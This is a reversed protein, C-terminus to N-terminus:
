RDPAGPGFGNGDGALVGVTNGWTPGPGTGPVTEPAAVPRTRLLETLGDLSRLVPLDEPRLGSGHRDLWIGMLGAAAAARADVDVEDGVYACRRAPVGLRSCALHFVRPDPKGFGLDDLCVTLPVRETLGLRALKAASFGRAANTLVGWPLGIRDLDDLAPLADRNVRLSAAFTRDFEVLWSDIEADDLAPGGFQTHLDRVRLRRQTAFDHEGRTYARFHGCPDLCWRLVVAEHSEQGLRPLWRRVQGLVAARFAGRTDILTDDLDLLVAEVPCDAAPPLLESSATGLHGSGALSPGSSGAAFAEAEGPRSTTGSVGM